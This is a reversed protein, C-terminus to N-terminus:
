DTIGTDKKVKESVMRGIEAPAIKALSDVTKLVRQEGQRGQRIVCREEYNFCPQMVPPGIIGQKRASRRQRRHLTGLSLPKRLGELQERFEDILRGYPRWGGKKQILIDLALVRRRLKIQKRAVQRQHRKQRAMKCAMQRATPSKLGKPRKTGESVQQETKDKKGKKGKKGTEKKKGAM